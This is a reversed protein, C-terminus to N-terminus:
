VGFGSRQLDATTFEGDGPSPGEGSRTMGQSAPAGAAKDDEKDAFVASFAMAPGQGGTNGGPTPEMGNSSDSGGNCATLLVM